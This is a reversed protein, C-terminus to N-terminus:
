KSGLREYDPRILIEIRRNALRGEETENSAIPHKAGWGTVTYDAEVVENRDYLVSYIQYAQQQTQILTFDETGWGHTHVDIAVRASYTKRIDEAIRNLIPDAVAKLRSSEGHFLIHTPIRHILATHIAGVADIDAGLAEEEGPGQDPVDRLKVYPYMKEPEAVASIDLAPQQKTARGVPIYIVGDESIWVFVDEHETDAEFIHLDAGPGDILVNDEFYLVISGGTGLSVFGSGEGEADPVGLAKAKDMFAPGPEDGTGEGLAGPDYKVVSDAFSIEGMPFLITVESPEVSSTDESAVTISLGMIESSLKDEIHNQALGSSALGVMLFFAIAGSGARNKRMRRAHADDRLIYVNRHKFVLLNKM